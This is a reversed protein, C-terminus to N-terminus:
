GCQEEGNLPLLRTDTNSVSLVDCAISNSVDEGEKQEKQVITGGDVANEYQENESVELLEKELDAVEKIVWQPIEWLSFEHWIQNIEDLENPVGFAGKEYEKIVTFIGGIAICLIYCALKVFKQWLPTQGASFFLGGTLFTVGVMSLLSSVIGSILRKRRYEDLTIIRGYKDYLVEVTSWKINTPTITIRIKNYKAILHKQESAFLSAESRYGNNILFERKQLDTHRKNYIQLFYPLYLAKDRNDKILLKHEKYKETTLETNLGRQLAQEALGQKIVMQILTLGVTMFSISTLNRLVNSWYAQTVIEGLDGFTIICLLLFGVSAIITGIYKRLINTIAMM